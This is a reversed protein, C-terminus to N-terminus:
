IRTGLVEFALNSILEHEARHREGDCDMVEGAARFLAMQRQPSMEVLADIARSTISPTGHKRMVYARLADADEDEIHFEEDLRRALYRVVQNVEVPLIRGDARAVGALVMAEHAIRSRMVAYRKLKDVTDTRAAVPRGVLHSLIGDRDDRVEGYRDTISVIREIDFVRFALRLHCYAQVTYRGYPASVVRSVTIERNTLDGKGDEYEIIFREGSDAHVIEGPGWNEAIDAPVGTRAALTDKVAEIVGM